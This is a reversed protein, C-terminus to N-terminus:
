SKEGLEFHVLDNFTQDSFDKDSDWDGGWRININMMKATALVFGAFHYFRKTDNWDIPWPAVDVAVSPWANHKSDPWNKESRGMHFAEEQAAQDRHGVLIACDYTKVVEQFLLQLDPHVTQLRDWSKTGFKAM